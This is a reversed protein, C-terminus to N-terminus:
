ILILSDDISNSLSNLLYSIITFKKNTKEEQKVVLYIEDNEEIIEYIKLEVKLKDFYEYIQFKNDKYKPIIEKIIPEFTAM